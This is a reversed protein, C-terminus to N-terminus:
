KEEKVTVTIPKSVVLRDQLEQGSLDGDKNYDFDKITIAIYAACYQILHPPLTGVVYKAAIDAETVSALVIANPYQQLLLDITGQHRSAIVVNSNNDTFAAQSVTVYNIAMDSTLIDDTTNFITNRPIIPAYYESVGMDLMVAPSLTSLIVNDGSKNTHDELGKFAPFGFVKVNNTTVFDKITM